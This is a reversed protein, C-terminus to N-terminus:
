DLFCNLNLYVYVNLFGRQLVGRKLLARFCGLYDWPLLPIKELIERIRFASDTTIVINDHIYMQTMVWWVSHRGTSLLKMIMAERWVVGCRAWINYRCLHDLRGHNQGTCPLPLKVSQTPHPEPHGCLPGPLYCVPAHHLRHFLSCGFLDVHSLTICSPALLLRFLLFVNLFDFQLFLISLM